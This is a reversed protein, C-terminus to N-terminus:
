TLAAEFVITIIYDNDAVDDYTVEQKVTVPLVVGGQKPIPLTLGSALISQSSGSLNIYSSTSEGIRDEAALSNVKAIQLPLLLSNGGVEMHGDSGVGNEYAVISWNNSNALVGLTAVFAPVAPLAPDLTLATNNTVAVENWTYGSSELSINLEIAEILNASITLNATDTEEASVSFPILSIAIICVLMCLKINSKM